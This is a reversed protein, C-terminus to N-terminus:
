TLLKRSTDDPSSRPASNISFVQKKRGCHRERSVKFRFSFPRTFESLFDDVIKQSLAMLKPEERESGLERSM